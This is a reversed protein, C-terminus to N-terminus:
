EPSHRDGDDAQGVHDDPRHEGDAPGSPGGLPLVVDLVTGAGPPSDLLLRGGLAEVRDKLGVLGSGHDFRAGCGDDQARVHLV